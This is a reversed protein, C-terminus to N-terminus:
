AGVPADLTSKVAEVLQTVTFPKLLVTHAGLKRVIKVCDDIPLYSGGGTMVLIRASPYRSKMEKILDIGDTEPMILDTVILDFYQEGLLRLAEGGSLASTVAYGAGRLAQAVTAVIEESDDVALVALKVAPTDSM